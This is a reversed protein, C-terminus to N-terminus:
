PVELLFHFLKFIRFLFVHHKPNLFRPLNEIELLNYVASMACPVSSGQSKMRGDAMEVMEARNHGGGTIATAKRDELGVRGLERLVPVGRRVPGGSVVGHDCARVAGSDMERTVKWGFESHESGGSTM